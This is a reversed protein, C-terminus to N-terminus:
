FPREAVGAVRAVVARVTVLAVSPVSVRERTADLPQLGRNGTTAEFFHRLLSQALPPANKLEGAALRDTRSYTDV